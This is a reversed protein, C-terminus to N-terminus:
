LLPMSKKDGLVGLVSLVGLVGRVVFRHFSCSPKLPPSDKKAGAM